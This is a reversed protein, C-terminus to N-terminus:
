VHTVGSNPLDVLRVSKGTEHDKVKAIEVLRGSRVLETIRPRVMNMEKYELIQCVERDTVPGLQQVVNLIREKREDLKPQEQAYAALSNSHMAHTAHQM